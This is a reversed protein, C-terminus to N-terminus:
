LWLFVTISKCKLDDKSFSVKVSPGSVTSELVVPFVLVGM